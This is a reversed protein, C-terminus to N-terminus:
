KIYQLVAPWQTQTPGHPHKITQTHTLTNHNIHLKPKNFVCYLVRKDDDEDDEEAKHMM